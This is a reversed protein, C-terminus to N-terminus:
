IVRRLEAIHAPDVECCGGGISAGADPWRRVYEAYRAPTLGSSGNKVSVLGRVRFGNVCGPM